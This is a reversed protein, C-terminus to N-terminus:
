YLLDANFPQDLLDFLRFSEFSIKYIIVGSTLNLVFGISVKNPMDADVSNPFHKVTFFTVGVQYRKDFMV